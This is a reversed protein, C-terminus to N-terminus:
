KYKYKYKYKCKYKYKYKYRGNRPALLRVRTKFIHGVKGNGAMIVCVGGIRPAKINRSLAILDNGWSLIVCGVKFKKVCNKM